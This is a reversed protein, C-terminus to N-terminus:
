RALAPSKSTRPSAVGDNRARKQPRVDAGGGSAGTGPAPGSVLPAQERSMPRPLKALPTPQPDNTFYRHALAEAATPRKAPDLSVMRGLLDLADDSAKPFLSRLPPPTVKQFELYSPLSTVGPWNDEGPTGLAQFVKGLQDIDSVGMFWPRRLLLEAFICGAAWVDVGFGYSQAGFFLEPARYWRAFVQSTYPRNMDREPSALLRALGFDALKLGGDPALLCNNPKVDRHVIWRAHCAALGALLQQLYAKVDGPGLVLDRDKIVAELDSEMFELVLGINKKGIAFVDVLRIVNPHNIERLLKMERLATVHVGEKVDAVNIKKVAVVQGTKKDIAKFVSAFTGTGLVVSKEYGEM